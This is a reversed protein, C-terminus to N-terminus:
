TRRSFNNLWKLPDPEYVTIIILQKENQNIAVVIHLPRNSSTYGNILLSLLPYDDDYREIINGNKLVNEVDNDSIQREFLRKSAHLRYSIEYDDIGTLKM